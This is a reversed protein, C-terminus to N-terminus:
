PVFPVALRSHCVQQLVHDELPRGGVPINGFLQLIVASLKVAASRRIPGIIVFRQGVIFFVQLKGDAHLSVAQDVAIDFAFLELRFHGHYAHEPFADAGGCVFPM